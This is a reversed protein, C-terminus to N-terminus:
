NIEELKSSIFIQEKWIIGIEFYVRSGWKFAQVGKSQTNIIQFYVWLLFVIDIILKWTETSEVSRGVGIPSELCTNEPESLM